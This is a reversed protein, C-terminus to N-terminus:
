GEAAEHSLEIHDPNMGCQKMIAYVRSTMFSEMNSCKGCFFTYTPQAPHASRVLLTLDGPGCLINVLPTNCVTCHLGPGDDQLLYQDLAFTIMSRLVMDRAIRVDTQPEFLTVTMRRDGFMFAGSRYPQTNASANDPTPTQATM